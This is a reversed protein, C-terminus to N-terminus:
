KFCDHGRDLWLLYFNNSAFFGHVRAKDNVDLGYLSVEPSISDPLAFRDKRNTGSHHHCNKTTSKIQAETRMSVKEVWGSFAKLEASQWKSFCECSKQFYKLNV